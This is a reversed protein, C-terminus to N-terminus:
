RERAQSLLITYPRNGSSWLLSSRRRHRKEIRLQTIDERPISKSQRSLFMNSKTIMSHLAHNFVVPIFCNLNGRYQRVHSNQKKRKAIIRAILISIGIDNM